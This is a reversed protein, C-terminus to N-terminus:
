TRRQLLQRALEHADPTAGTVHQSRTTTESSAAESPVPRRLLDAARTQCDVVETSAVSPPQPANTQGRSTSSLIAEAQAHADLVQAQASMAAAFGLTALIRTFNM